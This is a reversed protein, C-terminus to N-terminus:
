PNEWRTVVPAQGRVVGVVSLSDLRACFELDPTLGARIINRGGRSGTLAGLLDTRKCQFLGDAIQATDSVLEVDTLGRLANIVAGAGLTDELSVEGETGSCLLTVDGGTKVLAQAVAAANVLAGAFIASAAGAALIARTGNTTSMLLTQGHHSQASLAGPFVPTFYRTWSFFPSPKAKPGSYWIM